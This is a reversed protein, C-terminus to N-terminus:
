QVRGERWADLDGEWAVTGKLALIQQQREHRLVERLAHDILARRTKLGTAKLCEEVLEDDLVVNTRGMEIVEMCMIDGSLTYPLSIQRVLIPTWQHKNTTRFFISWPLRDLIRASRPGVM